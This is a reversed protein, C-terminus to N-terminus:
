KHDVLILRGSSVLSFVAMVFHQFTSAILHSFDELCLLLHGGAADSARLALFIIREEDLLSM